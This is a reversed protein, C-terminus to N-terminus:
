TSAKEAKAPVDGLIGLEKLVDAEDDTLAVKVIKGEVPEYLKGDHKLPSLVTYATKAVQKEDPM